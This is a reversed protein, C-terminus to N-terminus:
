SYVPRSGPGRIWLPSKPEAGDRTAPPPRPWGVIIRACQRAKQLDAIGPFLRRLEVTAAFEGGAEFAAHVSAIEDESLSFMQPHDQGGRWSAALSAASLSRAGGGIQDSGPADIGTASAVGLMIAMRIQEAYERLLGPVSRTFTSACTLADTM